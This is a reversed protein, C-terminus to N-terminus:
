DVYKEILDFYLLVVPTEDNVEYGLRSWYRKHGARFEDANKDGEAEAIPFRDPVEGFKCFTVETIKVKGFQVDDNGLLILEEGVHEVPENEEVYELALAATARKNGYVVLNTFKERSEGPTGFEISRLGNIVKFVM